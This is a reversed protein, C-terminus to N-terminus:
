HEQRSSDCRRHSPSRQSEHWNRRKNRAKPATRSGRMPRHTRKPHCQRNQPSPTRRQRDAPQSIRRDASPGENDHDPATRQQHPNNSIFLCCTGLVRQRSHNEVTQKGQETVGPQTDPSGVRKASRPFVNTWNAQQGSQCDAPEESPPQRAQRATAGDIM